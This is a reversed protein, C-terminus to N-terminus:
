IHENKIAGVTYRQLPASFVMVILSPSCCLLPDATVAVHVAWTAAVAVPLGWMTWESATPRGLVGFTYVCSKEKLLPMEGLNVVPASIFSSNSASSFRM